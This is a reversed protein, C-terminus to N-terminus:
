SLPEVSWRLTPRPNRMDRWFALSRIRIMGFISPYFWRISQSDPVSLYVLTNSTLDTFRQYYFPAFGAQAMRLRHVQPDRVNLINAVISRSALQLSAEQM